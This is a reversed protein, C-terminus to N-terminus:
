KKIASYMIAVSAAASAGHIANVLEMNRIDELKQKYFEKDDSCMDECKLYNFYLNKIQPLFSTPGKKQSKRLIPIIVLLIFVGFVLTGIGYIKLFIATFSEYEYGFLDVERPLTFGIITLVIGLLICVFGIVKWVTIWKQIRKKCQETYNAVELDYQHEAELVTM